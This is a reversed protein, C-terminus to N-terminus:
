TSLTLIADRWTARLLWEQIASGFSSNNALICSVLRCKESKTFGHASFCHWRDGYSVGSWRPFEGPDDRYYLGGESLAIDHTAPAFCGTESSNSWSAALTIVAGEYVDAMTAAAEEWDNEDGQIIGLNITYAKEYYQEPCNRLRCLADIWVYHISLRWCFWAADRFTKPFTELPVGEKLDAMTDLRLQMAPGHLGWCHSLCAYTIGPELNECLRMQKGDLELIRKPARQVVNERKCHKHKDKCDELWRRATSVAKHCSTDRSM